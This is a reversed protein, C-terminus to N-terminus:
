RVMEGVVGVADVESENTAQCSLKHALLHREEYLEWARRRELLAVLAQIENHLLFRALCQQLARNLATTPCPLSRAHILIGLVRRDSHLYLDNINYVRPRAELTQVGLLTHM